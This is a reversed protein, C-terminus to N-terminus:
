SQTRKEASKQRSVLSLNTQVATLAVLSLKNQEISISANNNSNYKHLFFFLYFIFFFSFVFVYLSYM